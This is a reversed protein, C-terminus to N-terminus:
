TSWDAEAVRAAAGPRAQGDGPRGRGRRGQALPGWRLAAKCAVGAALLFVAFPAMALLAGDPDAVAVEAAEWAVPQRFVFMGLVFMSAAFLAFFAVKFSSM